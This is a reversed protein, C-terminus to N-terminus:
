RFIINCNIGDADEIHIQNTKTNKCEIKRISDFGSRLLLVNITEGDNSTGIPTFTNIWDSFELCSEEIVETPVPSTTTLQSTFAKETEHADKQM